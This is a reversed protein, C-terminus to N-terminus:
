NSRSEFGTRSVVGNKISSVTKFITDLVSALEWRKSYANLRFHQILFDLSVQGQERLDPESSNVSIRFSARIGDNEIYIGIGFIFLYSTM